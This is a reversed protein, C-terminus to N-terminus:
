EAMGCCSANCHQWKFVQAVISLVGEKGVTDLVVNQGLQRFDGIELDDAPCAHYSIAAFLVRALDAIRKLYRMNQFAAYTLSSGPEMYIGLQDVRAGIYVDPHLLVIAIQFVDERDLALDSLFDCLAKVGFDRM